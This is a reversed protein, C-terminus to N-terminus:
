AKKKAAKATKTTHAPAEQPAAPLRKALAYITGHKFAKGTRTRLGLENLKAATQADSLGQRKYMGILELAQKNAPNSKANDQRVQLGKSIASATLNEPKGLLVGKKKLESLATKTRSVITEREWQAIAAMIQITMKNATPMDCCIFELNSDMLSSIFSVNRSLRDLKAIVLTAGQKKCTDLAKDLEVRNNKKGSEIETFTAILEGDRVFNKVATQQGDLGLGSVGQKATSVRYYAVYKKIQEM